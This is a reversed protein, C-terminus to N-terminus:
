SQLLPCFGGPIVFTQCNKLDETLVVPLCSGRACGGVWSTPTLKTCIDQFDSNTYVFPGSYYRPGILGGTISLFAVCCYILGAHSESGPKSGFGGDFNMCSLVHEVAKDVDIADMRGQSSTFNTETDPILIM